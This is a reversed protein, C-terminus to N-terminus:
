FSSSVPSKKQAGRPRRRLRRGQITRKENYFEDAHILLFDRTEIKELLDIM